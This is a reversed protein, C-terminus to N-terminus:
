RFTYFLHASSTCYLLRITINMFIIYSCVWYPLYIMGEDAIFELVGCHSTRGASPNHLEFLMPYDIHLTAAAFVMVKLHHMTMLGPNLACSLIAPISFLFNILFSRCVLAILLQPLCLLQIFYSIYITM